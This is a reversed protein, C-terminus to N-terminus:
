EEDQQKDSESNQKEINKIIDVVDNPGFITNPDKIWEIVPKTLEEPVLLEGIQKLAEQKAAQITDPTYVDSLKPATTIFEVIIHKHCYPCEIPNLSKIENNEM